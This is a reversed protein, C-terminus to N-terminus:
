WLKEKGNGSFIQNTHTFELFTSFTAESTM